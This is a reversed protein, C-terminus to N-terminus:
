DKSIGDIAPQTARAIVEYSTDGSRENLLGELIRSYNPDPSFSVCDGITLIRVVGEDALKSFEPGRYGKSNISIGGRDYGPILAVGRTPHPTKSGGININFVTNSEFLLRTAGELAALLGLTIAIVIATDKLRKRMPVKGEAGRSRMPGNLSNTAADLKGTNDRVTVWYFDIIRGNARRKISSQLNSLVRLWQTADIIPNSHECPSHEM